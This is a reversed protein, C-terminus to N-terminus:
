ASACRPVGEPRAGAARSTGATLDELEDFLPGGAAITMGRYATRVPIAVEATREVAEM